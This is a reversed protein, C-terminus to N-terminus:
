GAQQSYQKQQIAPYKPTLRASYDDPIPPLPKKVPNSRKASQLYSQDSLSSNESNQYVDSFEPKSFYEPVEEVRSKLEQFVPGMKQIHKKFHLLDSHFISLIDQGNMVIDTPYIPETGGERTIYNVLDAAMDDWNRDANVGIVWATLTDKRLALQDIIVNHQNMSQNFGVRTRPHFLDDTAYFSFIAGLPPIFFMNRVYSRQRHFFEQKDIKLAYGGGYSVMFRYVNGGSETAMGAMLSSGFSISYPYTDSELLERTKNLLMKERYNQEPYSFDKYAEQKMRLPSDKGQSGRFVLAIGAEAAELEIKAVKKIVEKLLNKNILNNWSARPDDFQQFYVHISETLIDTLRTGESKTFINRNKQTRQNSQAIINRIFNFDNKIIGVIENNINFAINITIPHLNLNYMYGLVNYYSREKGLSFSETIIKKVQEELLKSKYNSNGILITAQIEQSGEEYQGGNAGGAETRRGLFASEYIVDPIFAIDFNNDIEQIKSRIFKEEAFPVTYDIPFGEPFSYFTFINTPWKFKIILRHIEEFEKQSVGSISSQRTIPNKIIKFAVYEAKAPSGLLVLLSTAILLQNFFKM